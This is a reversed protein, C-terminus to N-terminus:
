FYHSDGWIRINRSFYPHLDEFMTWCEMPSGAKLLLKFCVKEKIMAESM